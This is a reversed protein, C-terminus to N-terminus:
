DVRIGSPGRIKGGGEAVWSSSAAYWRAGYYLDGENRFIDVMGGFKNVKMQDHFKRDADVENPDESLTPYFYNNGLKAQTAVQIFSIYKAKNTASPTYSFRAHVQVKQEDTGLSWSLKGGLIEKSGEDKERKMIENIQVTLASIESSLRRIEKGDGVGVSAGARTERTM